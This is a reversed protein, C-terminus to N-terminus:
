SKRRVGFGAPDQQATEADIWGRELEWAAGERSERASVALPGCRNSRSVSKWSVIAENVLLTKKM